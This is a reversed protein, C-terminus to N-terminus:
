QLTALLAAAEPLADPTVPKIVPNAGFLATGLFLPLSALGLTTRLSNM